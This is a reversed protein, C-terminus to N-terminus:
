AVPEPFVALLRDLTAPEDLWCVLQQQDARLYALFDDHKDREVLMVFFRGLTNHVLATRLGFSTLRANISPTAYFGWTKRAVDYEVGGEATFTVQENPDLAIHACDSLVAELGPGKVPFTRPPSKVDIKM